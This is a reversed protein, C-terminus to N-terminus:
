GGPPDQRRALLAAQVRSRVQLKELIKTVYHKITQESLCLEEAIARNTFGSGILSLIQRERDSLEEPPDPVPAQTLSALMERALSQTVYAEGAAVARVVCGLEQGSVGKLVYARAGAKFAALLKTRDNSSTLMVIATAPCAASVKEATYIGDWGDMGIDLLMVRPSLTLALDLAQEGSDAEGVVHLDREARLAAVVGRRFLPHDDVIVVSIADAM